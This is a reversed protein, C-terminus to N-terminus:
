GTYEPFLYFIQRSSHALPFIELSAHNKARLSFDSFSLFLLPPLIGVYVAFLEHSLALSLDVFRRIQGEVEGSRRYLLSRPSFRCASLYAFLFLRFFAFFVLFVFPFLYYSSSCDLPLDRRASPIRPTCCVHQLTPLGVIFLASM